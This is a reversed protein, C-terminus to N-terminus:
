AFAAIEDALRAPQDLAVFTSADDVEVLRADPFTAALRRALSLTFGRDRRGWVLLVPRDFRGLWDASESLERGTWARAFVAVDRRVGADTLYPTVWPRTEAATLRRHALLGFGLPSTRVRGVRVLQLVARAATEHRALRFLLDFPFPPFTDFADCNTLVLRGVRSSDEELLLQCVAGGTDNGVLVVDRLDLAELFSAVLRAVGRPSLDAGSRLAHRHSGLPWTPALCRFGREALRGAVDVWLTHDVLVGHVFVVVPGDAPGVELYTITGAPLDVAAM